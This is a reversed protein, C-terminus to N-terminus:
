RGGAGIRRPEGPYEVDDARAPQGGLALEMRDIPDLYGEDRFGTRAKFTNAPRGNQVEPEPLPKLRADRNSLAIPVLYDLRTIKKGDHHKQAVAQDFAPDIDLSWSCPKGESPAMIRILPGVDHMSPRTFDACGNLRRKCLDLIEGTRNRLDRQAQERQERTSASSLNFDFLVPPLTEEQLPAIASNRLNGRVDASEVSEASLASNGPPAPPADKERAARKRDRDKARRREAAEDTARPQASEIDAIARVLDDGSVGAAIFHKLATAIPGM